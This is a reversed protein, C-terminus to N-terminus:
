KKEKLLINELVAGVENEHLGIRMNPHYLLRILDKDMQTFAANTHVKSYFISEPYMPSVQGLGIAGTVMGRTWSKQQAATAQQNDIFILSKNIEQNANWWVSFARLNLRAVEASAPYLASFQAVSGFYLTTNSQNKDTVVEISFGNTSLSNIENRIKQFESLNDATPNGEIYVKIDTEWRRTIEDSGGYFFGLAIEQFYSIVSRDYQSLEPTVEEEETLCGSCLFSIFTLLLLTKKM